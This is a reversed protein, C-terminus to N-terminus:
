PNFAFSNKRFKHLGLISSFPDRNEFAFKNINPAVVPLLTEEKIKKSIFSEPEPQFNLIPHQYCILYDCTGHELSILYDEATKFIMESKTFQGYRQGM